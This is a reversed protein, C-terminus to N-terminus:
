VNFGQILENYKWEFFFYVVGYFVGDFIMEVVWCVVEVEEFQGIIGFMMGYIVVDVGM